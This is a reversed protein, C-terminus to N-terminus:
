STWSCPFLSDAKGQQNKNSWLWLGALLRDGLRLRRRPRLWLRLWLWLRLRLRLRDLLGQVVTALILLGDGFWELIDLTARM